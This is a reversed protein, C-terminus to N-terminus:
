HTKIPFFYFLYILLISIILNMGTEFINFAHSLTSMIACLEWVTPLSIKSFQFHKCSDPHLTYCLSGSICCSLSPLLTSWDWCGAPPCHLDPKIVRQDATGSLGMSLLAWLKTLHAATVMKFTKSIKDKFKHKLLSTWPFLPVHLHASSSLGHRGNRCEIQMYHQCHGMFGSDWHAWLAHSNLSVWLSYLYTINIVLFPPSSPSQCGQSDQSSMSEM